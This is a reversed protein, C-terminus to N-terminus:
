TEPPPSNPKPQSDYEEIRCLVEFLQKPPISRQKGVPKILTGKRIVITDESGSETAEVPIRTFYEFDKNKHFEKSRIKLIANDISVIQTFHKGTLAFIVQGKSVIRLSLLEKKFKETLVQERPNLQGSNAEPKNM